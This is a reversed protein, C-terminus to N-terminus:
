WAAGLWRYRGGMLAVIANKGEDRDVESCGFLSKEFASGPQLSPETALLLPQEELTSRLELRVGEHWNVVTQLKLGLLNLSVM